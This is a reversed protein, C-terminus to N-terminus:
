RAAGREPLTFPFPFVAALAAGIRRLHALALPPGVPHGCERGVRALGLVPRQQVVGHADLPARHPPCALQQFFNLRGIAYSGVEPPRGGSTGCSCFRSHSLVLALRCEADGVDRWVVEFGGDLGVSRRGHRRQGLHPAPRPRAWPWSATRRGTVAGNLRADARTLSGASALPGAPQPAARVAALKLGLAHMVKTITAFEPNGEGSLARHRGCIRSASFASGPTARVRV